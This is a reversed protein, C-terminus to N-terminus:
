SRPLRKHVAFRNSTGDSTVTFRDVTNSLVAEAVPDVRVPDDAAAPSQGEVVVEDGDHRYTVTLRAGTPAHEVLLACAEGVALRLDDVDEIAAGLDATFGSAALRVLRLHRTDAPLTLEVTDDTDDTDDTNVVAAPDPSASM